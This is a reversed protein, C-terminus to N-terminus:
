SWVGPAVAFSDQMPAWGATTAMLYDAAEVTVVSTGEVSVRNSSDKAVVGVTYHRQVADPPVYMQVTAGTTALFQPTKAGVDRSVLRWTYSAITSGASAVGSATLTVLAGSVVDQAAPPAVTPAGAALSVRGGLTPIKVLAASATQGRLRAVKVGVTGSVQGVLRVVRPNAVPTLRAFLSTVRPTAAM